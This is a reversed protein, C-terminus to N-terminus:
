SPINGLSFISYHYKRAFQCERRAVTILGACATFIRDEGILDTPNFGEKGHQNLSIAHCLEDVTLRRKAFYVWSLTDMAIQVLDSDQQQIRAM